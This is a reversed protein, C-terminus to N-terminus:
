VTLLVSLVKNVPRKQSACKKALLYNPWTQLSSLTQFFSDRHLSLSQLFFALQCPYSQQSEKVLSLAHSFKYKVASKFKYVSCPDSLLQDTLYRKSHNLTPTLVFSIWKQILANRNTKGDQCYVKPLTVKAVNESIGAVLPM